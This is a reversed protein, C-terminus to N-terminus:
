RVNSRINETALKFYSQRMDSLNPDRSVHGDAVLRDLAYRVTRKALRTEEAIEKSTKPGEEKLFRAIKGDSTSKKLLAHLGM